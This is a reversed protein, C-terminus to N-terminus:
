MGWLELRTQEGDVNEWTRFQVTVAPCVLLRPLCFASGLHESAFSSLMCRSNWSLSLGHWSSLCSLSVSIPLPVSFSFFPNTPGVPYNLPHSYKGGLVSLGTWDRPGKHHFFLVSREVSVQMPPGHCTHAHMTKCYCFTTTIELTSLVQSIVSMNDEAKM